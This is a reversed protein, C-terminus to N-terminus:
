GAVGVSSRDNRGGRVRLYLSENEDGSQSGVFAFGDGVDEVAIGCM